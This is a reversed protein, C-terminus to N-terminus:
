IVRVECRARVVKFDEPHGCRTGVVLFYNGGPPTEDFVFTAEINKSELIRATAVKMMGHKRKKELWIGEDERGAVVPICMGVMHNTHGAVIIESRQTQVDHVGLIRARVNSLANVAILKSKLGNMLQRRAKVAGRVFLGESEPDSDRKPLTGSLRPYYSALGLNVQYGHQLAALIGGEIEMIMERIMLPKYTSRDSWWEAFRKEDSVDCMKLETQFKGMTPRKRTVVKIEQRKEM